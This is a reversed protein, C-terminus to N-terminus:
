LTGDGEVVDAHPVLLFAYTRQQECTVSAGDNM